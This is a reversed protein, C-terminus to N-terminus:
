TGLRYQVFTGNRARSVPRGPHTATQDNQAARQFAELYRGYCETPTGAVCGEYYLAVQYDIARHLMELHVISIDAVDASLTMTAPKRFYWFACNVSTNPFPYLMLKMTGSRGHIAWM